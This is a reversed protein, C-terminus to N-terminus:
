KNDGCRRDLECVGKTDKSWRRKTAEKETDNKEEAQGTELEEVQNVHNKPPRRGLLRNCSVPGRRESIQYLEALRSPKRQPATGRGAASGRDTLGRPSLM